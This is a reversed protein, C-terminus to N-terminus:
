WGLQLRYFRSNSVANTDSWTIPMVSPNTLLLPQWNSLNTATLLTYNWGASGNVTLGIQSGARHIALTPVTVDAKGVFTVVSQAPLVYAFTANTVNVPAQNSLSLSGSTIWPTVHTATFGNLNFIQVIDSGSNNIAVIAFGGSNPDKYASISTGANNVVGVRYYGPRVFRSYQGLVYMRKAPVGNTDTLGENDPNYSVLWWFNWANAQAVTMFSHIQNAWYLGNGM